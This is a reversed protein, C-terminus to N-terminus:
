ISSQERLSRKTALLIDDMSLHEGTDAHRVFGDRAVVVTTPLRNEFRYASHTAFGPDHLVTVGLKYTKLFAEVVSAPDATV